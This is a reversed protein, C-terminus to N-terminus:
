RRGRAPSHEWGALLMRMQRLARRGVTSPTMGPSACYERFDFANIACVVDVAVALPLTAPLVGARVYHRLLRAIYGAFLKRNRGFDDGPREHGRTEAALLERWLRKDQASRV